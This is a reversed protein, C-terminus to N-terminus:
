SPILALSKLDKIEQTKSKAKKSQKILNLKNM